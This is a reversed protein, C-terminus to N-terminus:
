DNQLAYGADANRLERLLLGEDDRPHMREGIGMPDIHLEVREDHVQLVDGVPDDLEHRLQRLLGRREDVTIAGPEAQVPITRLVRGSAADLMLVARRTTVFARGRGADVAVWPYPGVAVTHLVM